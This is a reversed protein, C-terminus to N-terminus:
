LRLFEQNSSKFENIEEAFKEKVSNLKVATMGTPIVAVLNTNGRGIVVGFSKISNTKRESLIAKRAEIKKAKASKSKEIVEKIKDLLDIRNEM